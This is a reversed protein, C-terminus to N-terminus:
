AKEIAHESGGSAFIRPRSGDSATSSACDAVDPQSIEVEARSGEVGHSAVPVVTTPAAAHQCFLSDCGVCLGVAVNLDCGAANLWKAQGAPDCSRETWIPELVALQPLWPEAESVAQAVADPSIVDFGAQVLGARLVEAASESGVCAAIGVRRFGRRRAFRIVEATRLLTDHGSEGSTPHVEPKASSEEGQMSSDSVSSVQLFPQGERWARISAPCWACYPAEYKMAMAASVYPSIM